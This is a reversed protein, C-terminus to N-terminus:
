QHELHDSAAVLADDAKARWLEWNHGGPFLQFRHAVGQASLARSFEANETKLRDELGSYFWIYTHARNLDVAVRPLEVSPSNAALLDPNGGFIPQLDDAREYGSWSELVKFEGPHHFGINLAGYGGESLGGLARASGKPITRYTGDIAAVVDRAVFTEWAEDESMGNAWEKDTFAGTSGNPMVLIMPHVKRQAILTDMLVGVRVTTLWSRPVGPFGHLLYFVPYRFKTQAYGPPLYVYVQQARGGLAPSAVTIDQITGQRKVFSPEEPASFGRYLWYARAYRYTGVMGVSVFAALVTVLVAAVLGRSRTLSAVASSM